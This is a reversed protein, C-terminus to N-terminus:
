AEVGTDAAKRLVDAVGALHAAGVSGGRQVPALDEDTVGVDRCVATLVESLKEQSGAVAELADAMDRITAERFVVYGPIPAEGFRRTPEDRDAM